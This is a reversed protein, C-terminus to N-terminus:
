VNEVVAVAEGRATLVYGSVAVEATNSTGSEKLEASCALEEDFKHQTTDSAVFSTRTLKQWLKEEKCVSL